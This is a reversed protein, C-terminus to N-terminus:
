KVVKRAKIKKTIEYAKVFDKLFQNPFEVKEETLFNFIITGIMPKVQCLLLHLETEEDEWLEEDEEEPPATNLIAITRQYLEFLVEDTPMGSLIRKRLKREEDVTLSM